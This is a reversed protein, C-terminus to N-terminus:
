MKWEDEWVDLPMAPIIKYNGRQKKRKQEEINIALALYLLATRILKILKLTKAEFGERCLSFALSDILGFKADERKKSEDIWIGDHLKLYRHELHNRISHLEKAEPEIFDRFGPKDEYLDKSLWFLGRLPWNELQKLEDRLGKQRNQM